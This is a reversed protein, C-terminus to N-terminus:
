VSKEVKELWAILEPTVKDGLKTLLIRMQNYLVMKHPVVTSHTIITNFHDATDNNVLEHITAPLRIMLGRKTKQFNEEVSADYLETYRAILSQVHPPFDKARNAYYAKVKAMDEELACLREDLMLMFKQEASMDSENLFINM